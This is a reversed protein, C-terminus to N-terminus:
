RCKCLRAFMRSVPLVRMQYGENYMRHAETHRASITDLIAQTQEVPVGEPVRFIVRYNRLWYQMPDPIGNKIQVAPDDGPRWFHVNANPFKFHPPMVGVVTYPEIQSMLNWDSLEINKGVIAPDGGLRGRWLSDSLIITKEAGPRNDDVTFLRGMAPPIRWLSFFNPSVRAGPIQERFEKGQLKAHVSYYCAIDTFVDANARLESLVVPNIGQRDHGEKANYSELFM